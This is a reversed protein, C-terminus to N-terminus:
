KVIDNEEKEKVKDYLEEWGRRSSWNQCLERAMYMIWLERAMNM